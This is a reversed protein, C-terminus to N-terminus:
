LYKKQYEFDDIKQIYDKNYKEKYNNLLEKSIIMDM